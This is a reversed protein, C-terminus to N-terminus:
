RSKYTCGDPNHRYLFRHNSGKKLRIRLLRLVEMLVSPGTPPYLPPLVPSPIEQPSPADVPASILRGLGSIIGETMSGSLGFPNGIAMVQEGIELSTSNGFPLPVLKDRADFPVQIVAIDSFPDAGVLTAPYVTGDNVAM